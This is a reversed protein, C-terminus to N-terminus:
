ERIIELGSLLGRERNIYVSMSRGDELKMEVIKSSSGAKHHQFQVTHCDPDGCQCVGVIVLSDLQNVLDEKEVWCVAQKGDEDKVPIPSGNPGLSDLGKMIYDKEAQTIPRPYGGGFVIKVPVAM